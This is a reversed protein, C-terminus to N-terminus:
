WVPQWLVRILPVERCGLCMLTRAAAMAPQRFFPQQRHGVIPPNQKTATKMMQSGHNTKSHVDTCDLFDLSNCQLRPCCGAIRDSDSAEMRMSLDQAQLRAGLAERRRVGYVAVIVLIPESPLM